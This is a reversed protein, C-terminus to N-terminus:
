QMWAAYGKKERVAVNVVEVDSSKAPIQKALPVAAIRDYFSEQRDVVRSRSERVAGLMAIAIAYKHRRFTGRGRRASVYGGIIVNYLNDHLSPRTSTLGRTYVSTCVYVGRVCNGTFASSVNDGPPTPSLRPNFTM